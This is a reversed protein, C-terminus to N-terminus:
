FSVRRRFGGDLSNQKALSGGVLFCIISKVRHYTNPTVQHKRRKTWPGESIKEWAPFLDENSNKNLM